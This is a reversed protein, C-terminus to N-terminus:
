QCSNYDKFMKEVEKYAYKRAKIKTSLDKCTTFYSQFYDLYSQENYFEIFTPFASTVDPNPIGAADLGDIRKPKLEKKAFNYEKEPYKKFIYIASTDSKEADYLYLEAKGTVLEQAFLLIKKEKTFIKFSQYFVENLWYGLIQEPLLTQVTGSSDIIELLSLKDGQNTNKDFLLNCSQKKGLNDLYFTKVTDTKLEQSFAKISFLFFLQYFIKKM